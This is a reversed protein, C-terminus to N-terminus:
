QGDDFKNDIALLVISTMDGRSTIKKSAPLAVELFALEASFLFFSKYTEKDRVASLFNSDPIIRGREPSHL